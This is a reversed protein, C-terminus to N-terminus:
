RPLKLTVLVGAHDSVTPQSLDVATNFVVRADAAPENGIQGGFFYDTRAPNNDGLETVDVTCHEDPFDSITNNNPNCLSEADGNQLAYLDIFGSRLIEKYADINDQPNNDPDPPDNNDKFSIINFDGGMIIPNVGFPAFYGEVNNVFELLEGVQQAREGPNLTDCSSCLHTNYINIRGNGPIGLRTMLANRQLKIALGIFEIESARSFRKVLKLHIDCLSLTANAVSLLGPIGVQFATHLEYDLGSGQRLINKLDLASSETGVLAGEVSEQLLVVDVPDDTTGDGDPDAIFAAIRELREDRTEVESFLLNVTLVQLRLQGDEAVEGCESASVAHPLLLLIACLLVLSDLLSTRLHPQTPNNM